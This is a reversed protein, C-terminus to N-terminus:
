FEAITVGDEGEGYTGLRFNRVLRNSKLEDHVLQRLVGTGKGHIIRVSPLRSMVANDVFQALVISAEGATMGRLDLEAVGPATRFEKTFSNPTKKLHVKPINDLLYIENEKATVKMIGAQLTYVGDKSVSLVEANTHYKLLEVTDGPM